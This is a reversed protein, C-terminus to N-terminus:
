RVSAESHVVAGESVSRVTLSQDAEVSSARAALDRLRAVADLIPKLSVDQTSGREYYGFPPAAGGASWLLISLERWLRVPEPLRTM